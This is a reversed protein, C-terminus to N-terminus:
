LKLWAISRSAIGCCSCIMHEKQERSFAFVVQIQRYELDPGTMHEDQVLELWTLHVGQHKLVEPELRPDYNVVEQTEKNRFFDYLTPDDGDLTREIREWRPSPAQRLGEM